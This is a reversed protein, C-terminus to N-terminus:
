SPFQRNRVKLIHKGNELGKSRSLYNNIEVGVLGKATRILSPRM